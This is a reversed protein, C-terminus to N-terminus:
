DDFGFFRTVCWMIGRFLVLIGVLLVPYWWHLRPYAPMLFAMVVVMLTVAIAQLLLVHRWNFARGTREGIWDLVRDPYVIVAALAGIILDYWHFRRRGFRM